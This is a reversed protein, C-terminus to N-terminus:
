LGRNGESMSCEKPSLIAAIHRDKINDGSRMISDHEGILNFPYYSALYEDPLGLKHMFEHEITKCNSSSALTLNAADEQSFWSAGNPNLEKDSLASVMEESFDERCTGKPIYSDFLVGKKYRVRCTSCWCKHIEFESITLLTDERIELKVELQSTSFEPKDIKFQNFTSILKEKLNDRCQIINYLAIVKEEESLGEASFDFSTSLNIINDKKAINYDVGVGFPPDRYIAESQNHSNKPQFPDSPSPDNIDSYGDCDTDYKSSDYYFKENCLAYESYVRENDPLDILFQDFIGPFSNQINELTAFCLNNGKKILSRAYRNKIQILKQDFTSKFKLDVDMKAQWARMTLNHSRMSGKADYANGLEKKVFDLLSETQDDPNFLYPYNIKLRRAYNKEGSHMEYLLAASMANMSSKANDRVLKHPPPEYNFSNNCKIYNGNNKPLITKIEDELVSFAYARMKMLTLAKSGGQLFFKVPLDRPAPQCNIQSAYLAIDDPLCSKRLKESAEFDTTAFNGFGSHSTGSSNSAEIPPSIGEHAKSINFNFLFLAVSFIMYNM